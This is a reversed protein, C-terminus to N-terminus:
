GPCLLRETMDPHARLGPCEVTLRFSRIRRQSREKSLAICGPCGLITRRRTGRNPQIQLLCQILNEVPQM